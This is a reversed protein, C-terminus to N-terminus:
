SRSRNRRLRKRLKEVPLTNLVDEARLWARRAVMIGWQLHDFENPTHADSDVVITDAGGAVLM